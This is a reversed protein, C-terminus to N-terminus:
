MKRRVQAASEFFNFLGKKDKQVVLKKVKQLEKEFRVIWGQIAKGNDLCIESWMQASSAAVRSADRFSSGAFNLAKAKKFPAVANVLSFGIINPLHSIAALIQDHEEADMLTTKAGLAQTWQMLKKLNKQYVLDKRHPTYIWWRDKFLDTVAAAMGSHETGAIPHGAILHVSAPLIKNLKNLIIKKTSGVDTVVTGSALFPSIKEALEPISQVPTALIVLECGQVAQTPDAYVEDCAKRKLALNRGLKSRNYGVVKQALGKKKLDLAISGGILGLGLIAVNQFIKKKM